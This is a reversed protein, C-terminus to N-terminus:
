YRLNIEIENVAELVQEPLEEHFYEDTLRTAPGSITTAGVVGQSEDTIAAGVANFGVDSEERNFAYGRDRVAELEAFLTESDTITRPTAAPLGWRDVIGEAEARPLEALIAKGAATHHIYRRQGPRIATSVIRDGSSQYLHYTRGNQAGILWGKEGTQEAVRDITERAAQYLENQRRTHLGYELFRMGIRYRNSDRVLFGHQELTTLHRHATSPAIDLEDAVDVLRHGENRKITELIRFSTELTTVSDATTSTEM